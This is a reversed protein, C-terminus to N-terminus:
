KDGSNPDASQGAFWFFDGITADLATAIYHLRDALIRTLAYPL